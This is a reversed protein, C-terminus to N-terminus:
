GARRRLLAPGGLVLLAAAGPEPVALGGGGPPPVAANWTGLVLNLDVIGVFGDGNVDGALLDGPTVSQNWGTLVINLDAIGVFGDGDLDGILPVVRVEGTTMLQSRDISLGATYWAPDLVVADFGGVISVGAWDFLHFTSGLLDAPTLGDDLKMSLELTGGLNATGVSADFGITSGWSPDEILFRLTADAEIDFATEVTIPIPTLTPGGDDDYIWVDPITSHTPAIIGDRAVGDPYILNSYAHTSVSLASEFNVARRFDGGHFAGPYMNTFDSDKFDSNSFGSHYFTGGALIQGSLDWGEVTFGILSIGTLNGAQYSATSYLQSSTIPAFFFFAERIIAGTLDAEHFSAPRFYAKTLDLSSLDAGPVADVGAGNPVLAASQQKNLWHQQEDIYEWEYIDAPAPLITTIFALLGVALHHPKLRPQVHRMTKGKTSDRCGAFPFGRLHSLGM